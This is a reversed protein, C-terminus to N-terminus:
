LLSQPDVRRVEVIVALNVRYSVYRCGPGVVSGVPLMEILNFSDPFGIESGVLHALDLRIGQLFPKTKILNLRKLDM